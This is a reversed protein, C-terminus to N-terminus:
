SDNSQEEAAPETELDRLPLNPRRMRIAVRRRPEEDVQIALSLDKIKTDFEEVAVEVYVPVVIRDNAPLPWPDFQTTVQGSIGPPLSFTVARERGTKNILAVQIPKRVVRSGDEATALVSVSSDRQRTFQFTPRNLVAIMTGSVLVSLVAMYLFTRPRLVKREEGALTKESTFSILDIPKGVKEMIGNCADICAACQICEMQTGNRIDIGTPCVQICQHCDVCDGAVKGPKGRPEGRKADYGVILTHSDLLASQIRGYPCVITCTQERFWAFNFLILAFAIAFFVAGYPHEVPDIILGFLFAETGTFLATATNALAGTVLVYAIWKGLKRRFRPGDLPKADNARHRHAPGEFFREIPRYIIELFVNHPCIWGCFVRGLLSVMAVTGIIFTLVFLLFYFFDQPWYISGFLIYHREAIDIRIMPMGNIRVWPAAIYFAILAIAVGTRWRRWFGAVIHVYLGRRNGEKDVSALVSRFDDDGSETINDAM